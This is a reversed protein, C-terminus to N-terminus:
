RGLRRAQQYSGFAYQKVSEMAVTWTFVQEVYYRAWDWAAEEAVLKAALYEFRERPHATPGPEKKVCYGNPALHHGFEHVVVVYSTEDDIPPALVMRENLGMLRQLMDLDKLRLAAATSRELSKNYVVVVDFAESLQDVHRRFNPVTMEMKM